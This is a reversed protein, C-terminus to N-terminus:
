KRQVLLSLGIFCMSVMVLLASLANIEPTVGTRMMSFVKLPLTTSGPGATFFTVVFDDLSVTFSMLAAGWLAPQLQPFTIRRFAQWPTAGLDQAAEELAPDLKRLRARIILTVLPINFLMHGIIVTSLGLPWQVTVFFLMLSVGMMIEPIILPLMIMGDVLGKGRFTRQELCVAAVLGLLLAGFTSIIGVVLSNHTATWLTSNSALSAYWQLTFGEWSVAVKAANFSFVILVAIPGYLFVLTAVSLVRFGPLRGHTM